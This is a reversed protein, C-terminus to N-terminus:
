PLGGGETGVPGRQLDIRERQLDRTLAKRRGLYSKMGYGRSDGKFPKNSIRTM